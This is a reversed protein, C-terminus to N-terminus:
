DKLGVARVYAIVRAIRDMAADMEKKAESVGAATWRCDLLNVYARELDSLAFVLEDKPDDWAGGRYAGQYAWVHTM